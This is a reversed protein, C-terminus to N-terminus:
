DNGEQEVTVIRFFQLGLIMVQGTRKDPSKNSDVEVILDGTGTKTAPKVHLWSVTPKAGYACASQTTVKIEKSGSASSFTLEDKSVSYTCGDQEVIFDHGAIRFTASRATGSNPQITLTTSGSATGSTISPVIWSPQDAVTWSCTAPAKVDVSM